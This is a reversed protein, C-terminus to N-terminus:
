LVKHTENRVYWFNNGGDMEYGQPREYRFSNYGTVLTALNKLLTAEADM